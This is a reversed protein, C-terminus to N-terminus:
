YDEIPKRKINKFYNVSTFNKCCSILWKLPFFETFNLGNVYPIAMVRKWNGFTEMVGFYFEKGM